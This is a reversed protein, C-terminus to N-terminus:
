VVWSIFATGLIIFVIGFFRYSQDLAALVFWDRIGNYIRQPNVAILIGKVVAILGVLRVFWPYHSASAAVVLLLGVILPLAAVAKTNLDELATKLGRRISDTYLIMCAGFIIWSIGIVYLIWNM